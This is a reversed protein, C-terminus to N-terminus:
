PGLRILIIWLTIHKTLIQPESYENDLTATSSKIIYIIDSLLINIDIGGLSNDGNTDIIEVLWEDNEYSSNILSLDLTGAGFDFVIFDLEKYNYFNYLYSLSASIPEHLLENCNLKSIEAICSFLKRKSLNIPNKIFPEGWVFFVINFLKLEFYM